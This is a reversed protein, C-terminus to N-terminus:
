EMRYDAEVTATFTLLGPQVPMAGGADAVRAAKFEAAPFPGPAATGAMRIGVVEECARGAARCLGAANAAADRMARAGAERQLSDAASHRFDPGSLGHISTKFLDDLLTELKALDRVTIELVQSAMYGRFVRKGDAWDYEANLSVRATRLDSTDRVARRAVKLAAELAKRAEDAAARPTPRVSAAEVSLVAMDPAVRIEGTGIVTVRGGPNPGPPQATAVSPTALTLLSVLSLFSLGALGARSFSANM